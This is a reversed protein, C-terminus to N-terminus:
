KGNCNPFEYVNLIELRKFRMLPISSENASTIFLKRLNPFFITATKLEEISWHIKGSFEVCKSLFTESAALKGLLSLIEKHFDHFFYKLNPLNKLAMLCGHQTVNTKTVNLSIIKSNRSQSNIDFCLFRIGNDGINDCSTLDLHELHPCYNGISSLLSDNCTTLVLTTILPISLILQTLDAPIVNDWGTLNLYTLKKCIQTIRKIVQCNPIDFKIPKGCICSIDFQHAATHIFIKAPLERNHVRFHLEGRRQYLEDILISPLYQLDNLEFLEAVNRLALDQLALISKRYPM